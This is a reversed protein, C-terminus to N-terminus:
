PKTELIRPPLPAPDYRWPNAMRDYSLIKGLIFIVFLASLLIWLLVKLIKNIPNVKKVKKM